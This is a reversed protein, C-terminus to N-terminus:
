VPARAKARIEPRLFEFLNLLQDSAGAARAPAGPRDRQARGACGEPAAAPRAGPRCLQRLWARRRLAEADWALGQDIFQFLGTASSTPAKAGPNLNLERLTTKLLYDFSASTARAADRIPGLSALPL